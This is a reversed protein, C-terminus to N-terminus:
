LVPDDPHYAQLSKLEEIMANQREVQNEDMAHKLSMSLGKVLQERVDADEPYKQQLVRLEDLLACACKHQHIIMSVVFVQFLSVALCARVTADEPHKQSFERLEDLQINAYEFEYTNKINVTSIAGSLIAGSLSIAMWDRIYLDEPYTQTLKRLEGLLKSQKDRENVHIVNATISEGFKDRVVTDDPFDMALNRLEELLMDSREFENENIVHEQTNCLAYALSQCLNADEPYAQALERLENLLKDVHEFQKEDMAHKQAIYLGNALQERVKADEPYRQRLAYLENLLTFACELKNADKHLILMVVLGKALQTCVECNEIDMLALNRLEDLLSDACELHGESGTASLIQCLGKALHVRIHTDKPYAKALARLAELVAERRYANERGEVHYLAQGLGCCLIPPVVSLEITKAIRLAEQILIDFQTLDGIFSAASQCLALDITSLELEQEYALRSLAALVIINAVSDADESISPYKEVLAPIIASVEETLANKQKNIFYKQAYEWRQSHGFSPPNRKELVKKNALEDIATSSREKLIVDKLSQWHNCVEPVLALRIALRFEDEKCLFRKDLLIDLETFLNEQADRALKNLEEGSKMESKWYPHTWREIVGPYGDILRILEGDEIQSAVAVQERLYCILKKQEDDSVLDLYDLEHVMAPGRAGRELQQVYNVATEEPRLCVFIHCLPWDSLHSLYGELINAEFKISPSQEWSDLIIVIPKGSIIGVMNVLERAQEYPLPSLSIDGSTLQQNAKILDQMIVAIAQSTFNTKFIKEFIKCTAESVKTFLKGEHQKWIMEAQQRYTANSLWQSYLDSVARLFLDPASQGVAEYYGVLHRPDHIYSLQCALERILWSKGMRPRAVVATLGSKSARRTLFEIDQQRGFLEQNHDLFAQVEGHM